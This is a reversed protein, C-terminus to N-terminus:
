RPRPSRSRRARTITAPPGPARGLAETLRALVAAARAVDRAPLEAFASVVVAEVTHRRAANIRRGQATLTLRVRRGDAPDAAVVILRQRRLRALVGTLTSPHLHLVQALEGPALGPRLGVVRLVLRQQGTVGITRLMRKSSTQLEHVLAWLSQLFALPEPLPQADVPPTPSSRSM